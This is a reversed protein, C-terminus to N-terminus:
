HFTQGVRVTRLLGFSHCIGHKWSLVNFMVRLSLPLMNLKSADRVSSLSLIRKNVVKVQLDKSRGPEDWRQGM